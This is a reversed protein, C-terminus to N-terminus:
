RHPHEWSRRVPQFRARHDALFRPEADYHNWAGHEDHWYWHNNYWYAARGEYYVPETTAVYEPPPPIWQADATSGVLGVAGLAGLATVIVLPAITRKM